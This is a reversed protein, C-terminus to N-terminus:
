DNKLGNIIRDKGNIDKIVRINVFGFSKMLDVMLSGLSENIEFWVSGGPLLIIEAVRLIARYFVLPDTDSVFLAQHPEFDLVNRNMLYKESERVYPPNSIIIGSLPLTSIDMNLIDGKQFTINVNNLISNEKAVGLAEESIDIGTVTSEPFNRALAIAICGSGTGFDIINGAFGKNERITYHVLEETEPRPILTSPTVRILCDYFITEGLIYQIPKGTKLESCIKICREAQSNNVSQDSLYVQHLKTVGTLTKIIINTLSSLEPEPYIGELEQLLYFRIDKITQINVGM